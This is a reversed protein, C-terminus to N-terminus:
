GNTDEENAEGDLAALTTSCTTKPQHRLPPARKPPSSHYAAESNRALHTTDHVNKLHRVSIRADIQTTSMEVHGLLEQIHRGDPGGELMLWRRAEIERQVSVEDKASV